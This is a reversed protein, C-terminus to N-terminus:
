SAASSPMMATPSVSRPLGNPMTALRLAVNVAEKHLEIEQPILGANKLIRYAARESEPVLSLDEEPVPKGAGPLGDFVGEAIADSIRKEALLDLLLM